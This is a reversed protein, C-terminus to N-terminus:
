QTTTSPFIFLYDKLIEKVTRESLALGPYLTKGSADSLPSPSLYLHVLMDTHDSKNDVHRLEMMLADAAPQSNATM